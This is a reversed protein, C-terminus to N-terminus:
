HWVMPYSTFAGNLAVDKMVKSLTRLLDKLSTWTKDDLQSKLNTFKCAVDNHLSKISYAFRYNSLKLKSKTFDGFHLYTTITHTEADIHILEEFTAKAVDSAHLLSQIQQYVLMIKNMYKPISLITVIANTMMTSQSTDIGKLFAVPIADTITDM